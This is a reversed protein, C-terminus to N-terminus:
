AVRSMAHSWAQANEPCAASELPHTRFFRWIQKSVDPADPFSMAGPNGGYWGHARDELFLTEILTRRSGGWYKTHVWPTGRSNGSREHTGRSTDIDFCMAWSDRINEAARFDVVEDARSHAIFIPVPRKAQGMADNMAAVVHEVPKHRRAFALALCSESYPVGAVVAGSAIRASHVVMAAVAMGGGSSLGAIHIRRPNVAFEGKVEEVIQWIDEVEGGGPGIEKAIWWGWCSEMRVDRYSTVYPYVAIFGERDAIADFNSIARIDDHRQQCGHLVVVLPLPRRGTYGPPLHVAYRRWRSGRYARRRFARTSDREAGRDGPRFGAISDLSSVTVQWARRVGEKAHWRGSSLSGWAAKARSMLSEAINSLRHAVTQRTIRM